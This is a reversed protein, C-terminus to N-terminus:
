LESAPSHVPFEETRNLQLKRRRNSRNNDYQYNQSGEVYTEIHRIQIRTEVVSLTEPVRRRLPHAVAIWYIANLGPNGESGGVGTASSLEKNRSVASSLVGVYARDNPSCRFFALFVRHSSDSSFSRM